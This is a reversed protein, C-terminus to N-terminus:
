SQEGKQELALDVHDEEEELKTLVAKIQAMAEDVSVDHLQAGAANAHGGGDFQEMILQVNLTDISRASIYITDHFETVVFSAAIGEIDLLENAVQSAIVTPSDMGDAPFIALAYKEKFVEAHRVAEARSRYTDMSERFMKRVRIVDAGKRRLYAAAEFTRAGTKQVFNDTDILMGAYMADAEIANLDITENTYQLVEAVMECASSAYPEVYSLVANGIVESTARHHDFVVITNTLELLEPCETYSPRNVDVIMLLTDMDVLEKATKSDIFMDEDYLSNGEFRELVPRISMTAQNLVIHAEKGFVKALKYIGIASGIADADPLSHGMIVVREKTEIIGQLAHAKVRAKVRTNKEVQRSQGGYYTISEGKKIVVQDGGRGLAMDMAVRASEYCGQFTDEGMGISMSLTVPLENGVNINRVEDLLDFKNAKLQELYRQQFVVFFKDKEPKSVIGGIDTITKNVKRDVLAMLLPQRVDDTAELVEDFNDIYILSAILKQDKNEQALYRLNTEDFFYVVIMTNNYASDFDQMQAEEDTDAGEIEVRIMRFQVRYQRNEYNMSYETIDDKAGPFMEKAIHPFYKHIDRSIKTESVMDEFQHNHWLIMGDMDILAYPLALEKLLEKQVQGQEFAYSVLSSMIRPRHTYYMILVLVTYFVVFLGVLVGVKRNYLFATFVMFLLVFIMKLPIQLFREIQSKINKEKM